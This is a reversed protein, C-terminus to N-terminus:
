VPVMISHRVEKFQLWVTQFAHSICNEETSILPQTDDLIALTNFVEDAAKPADFKLHGEDFELALTM